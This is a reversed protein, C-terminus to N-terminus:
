VNVRILFVCFSLYPVVCFVFRRPVWKSMEGSIKKGEREFSFHNLPSM